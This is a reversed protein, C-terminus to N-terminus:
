CDKSETGNIVFEKYLEKYLEEKSINCRRGYMAANYKAPIIEYDEVVYVQTGPTYPLIILRGEEEAKRLPELEMELQQINTFVDQKVDCDCPVSGRARPTGYPCVLCNRYERAALCCELGLKIKELTRGAM